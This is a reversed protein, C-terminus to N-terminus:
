VEVFSSVLDNLKIADGVTLTALKQRYEPSDAGCEIWSKFAKQTKTM